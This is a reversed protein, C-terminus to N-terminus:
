VSSEKKKKKSKPKCVHKHEKWHKKQCKRSCYRVKRCRNCVKLDLQSGCKACKFKQIVEEYKPNPHHRAIFAQKNMFNMQFNGIAVLTIMQHWMEIKYALPTNIGHGSANFPDPFYPHTNFHQCTEMICQQLFPFIERVIDPRVVPEGFEDRGTTYIFWLHMAHISDNSDLKRTAKIAHKAFSAFMKHGLGSQKFLRAYIEHFKLIIRPDPLLREFLLKKTMGPLRLLQDMSSIIKEKSDPVGLLITSREWVYMSLEQEFEKLFPKLSPLHGCARGRDTLGNWAGNDPVVPSNPFWEEEITESTFPEATNFWDYKELFSRFFLFRKKDEPSDELLTGYQKEWMKGLRAHEIPPTQNEDIKVLCYAMGYIGVIYESYANGWRGGSTIFKDFHDLAAELLDCKVAAWGLNIWDLRDRFNDPVEKEGVEALKRHYYELNTFQDRQEQSMTNDLLKGKIWDALGKHVYADGKEEKVNDTYELIVDNSYCTKGDYNPLGHFFWDYDFDSTEEPESNLFNVAAAYPNEEMLREDKFIKSDTTLKYSIPV